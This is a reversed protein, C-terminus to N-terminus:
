QGRWHSLPGAILKGNTLEGDENFQYWVQYLWTAFPHASESPLESGVVYKYIMMETVPQVAEREDLEDDGCEALADPNLKDLDM